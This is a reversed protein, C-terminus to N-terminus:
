RNRNPARWPRADGTPCSHLYSFLQTAGVDYNRGSFMSCPDQELIESRLGSDQLLPPLRPGDSRVESYLASASGRMAASGLVAGAGDDGTLLLDSWCNGEFDIPQRRSLEAPDSLDIPDFGVVRVKAAEVSLRFPIIPEQASTAIQGNWGDFLPGDNLVV